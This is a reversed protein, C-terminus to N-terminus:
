WWSGSGECCEKRQDLWRLPMKLWSETEPFGLLSVAQDKPERIGGFAKRDLAEIHRADDGIPDNDHRCERNEVKGRDRRACIRGLGKVLGRLHRYRRFLQTEIPHPDGLM